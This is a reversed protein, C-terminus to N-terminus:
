CFIAIFIAMGIFCYSLYKLVESEQYKKLQKFISILFAGFLCLLSIYIM